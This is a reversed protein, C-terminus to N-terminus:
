DDAPNKLLVNGEEGFDYEFGLPSDPMESLIQAAILDAPTKPFKGYKEHYIKAGRELLDM